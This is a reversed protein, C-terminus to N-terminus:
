PLTHTHTHPLPRTCSTIVLEVVVIPHISPHVVGPECPLARIPFCQVLCAASNILRQISRPECSAALQRAQAPLSFCNTINHHFCTVGQIM